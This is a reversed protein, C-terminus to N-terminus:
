RKVVRYISHMFLIKTQSGDLFDRTLERSYVLNKRPNCPRFHSWGAEHPCNLLYKISFYPFETLFVSILTSLDRQWVYPRRCQWNAAVAEIPRQLQLAM